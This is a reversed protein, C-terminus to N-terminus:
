LCDRLFLRRLGATTAVAQTSVITQAGEPVAEIVVSVLGKNAFAKARHIDATTMAKLFPVRRGPVRLLERVKATEEATLGITLRLGAAITEHGENIYWARSLWQPHSYPSSGTTPSM